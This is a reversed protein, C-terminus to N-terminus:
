RTDTCACVLPLWFDILLSVIDHIHSRLHVGFIDVIKSLEHFLVHRTANDCTKIMHIFAPVMQPLYPIFKVGTKVVLIGCSRIVRDHINILSADYAISMLERVVLELFFEESRLKCVCETPSLLCVCVSETPNLM